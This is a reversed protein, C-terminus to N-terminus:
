VMDGHRLWASVACLQRALDSSCNSGIKNRHQIPIDGVCKAKLIYAVTYLYVHRIYPTFFSLVTESRVPDPGFGSGATRECGEIARDHLLLM